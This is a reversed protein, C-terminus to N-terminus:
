PLLLWCHTLVHIQSCIADLGYNGAHSPGNEKMVGKVRLEAGQFLIQLVFQQRVGPQQGFETRVQSTGRDIREFSRAVGMHLLQAERPVALDPSHCERKIGLSLGNQQNPAVFAARILAPKVFAQDLDGILAVVFVHATQGLLALPVM